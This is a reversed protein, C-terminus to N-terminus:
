PQRRLEVTKANSMEGVEMESHRRATHAGDLACDVPDRLSLRIQNADSAIQERSRARFSLQECQERLQRMREDHEAVV